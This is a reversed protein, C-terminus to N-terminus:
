STTHIIEYIAWPRKGLRKDGLEKSVVFFCDDCLIDTAYGCDYEYGCDTWYKYGLCKNPQKDTM